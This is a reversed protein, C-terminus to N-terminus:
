HNIDFVVLSGQGPESEIQIDIGHRQAILRAIPLGLGSGERSRAQDARFFREFVHPLDEKSIGEGFDRVTVRNGSATVRVEGGSSSYKVANGLVIQFMQRLREGDGRIVMPDADPEYVIAISRDAAASRASRVAGALAEKLSVPQMDMRFDPNQLKSLEMHDSILRELLGTENLMAAYYSNVQDPSLIVGDRLAELSGRLATVPTKLEHSVNAMFDRRLRETEESERRAAELRESLTDVARALDGIEDRQAVQTRATYDGDALRQAAARIATLPKSTIRSIILAAVLSLVLGTLASLAVIRVGQAEAEKLNALPTHLLLAGTVADGQQIPIGATLSPEDALSSFGESFVTAGALVQRVVQGADGPLDGYGIGRAGGTVLNMDTDVIWANTQAQTRLTALYRRYGAFMGGQGQGRGRAGPTGANEDASLASLIVDAQKLLDAKASAVTQQRFLASFMLGMAVALVLLSVALSLTIKAPISKVM